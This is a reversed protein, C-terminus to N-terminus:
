TKLQTTYSNVIFKAQKRPHSVVEFQKWTLIHRMKTPTGLMLSIPPSAYDGGIFQLSDSDAKREGGKSLGYVDRGKKKKLPPIWVLPYVVTSNSFLM